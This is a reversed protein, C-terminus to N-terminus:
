LQESNDPLGTAYLTVLSGLPAPNNHLNLTGDENTAVAPGTGQRNRTFIGPHARAVPIEVAGTGRGDVMLEVMSKGSVTEPAQVNIQDESSYLIRGPVGDFLVEEAIVGAGFISSLASPVIPGPVLSAANAVCRPSLPPGAQPRIRTLFLSMGEAAEDRALRGTSPFNNSWTSGAVSLSGDPHALIAGAFDDEGGGLSSLYEPQDTGPEVVMLVADQSTAGGMGGCPQFSGPTPRKPCGRSSSAIYLRGETGFAMPGPCGFFESGEKVVDLSPSWLGTFGRNGSSGALRIDGNASFQVAEVGEPILGKAVEDLTPTYRRLWSDSFVYVDGDPAVVIRTPAWPLER